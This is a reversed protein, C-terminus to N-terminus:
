KSLSSFVREAAAITAEIETVNHAASIFGAEYASPALYIGADLMGHYFAQFRAVDCTMVDAFCGVTALDTFFLGFMGGVQNTRFPIGADDAARQLGATLQQAREGLQEFFNEQQVLKLTALGAAMAMM